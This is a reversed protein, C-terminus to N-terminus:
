PEYFSDFGKARLAQKLQADETWLRRGLHLLLSYLNQDVVVCDPNM